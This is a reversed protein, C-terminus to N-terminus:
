SSPHEGAASLHALDEVQHLVTERKEKLEAALRRRTRLLLYARSERWFATRQDDFLLAGYATFPATLALLAGPWPGLYHGLLLGEAIWTLPFLLIAALVKFTAVQDADRTARKVIAGVLRYVPWTLITGVIAVPLHILMRLLSRAVFRTVPSLRYAAGVQDDRLDFAHLLNDYERVAEVVAATREPHRDRMERYGELFTRRVAVSESLKGRGPLEPHQSRYLDAARRALRADEWTAYNLTVDQLGQDIRATLERFAAVPDRGDLEIELAPDIAGGVQVLARSRFTEKADFLLGIPVIRVGLGPYKREAELVIRAAGTKLPKLSPDSHSTGEPFLALAGGKALLDHSRAFTELNRSPDAQGSDASEDQRRHVPIAGALKLFPRIVPIKWLTSKALFRPMVPLTGMLMLPDILGNVHNAVLVLPRDRPLRDAGVVEVERFFVKLVMRAVARMFRDATM